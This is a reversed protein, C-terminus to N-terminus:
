KPTYSPNAVGPCITNSQSKKTANLEDETLPVGSLIEFCRNSDATGNNVAKEVLNPKASALVGIDYRSLRDELDFVRSTITNFEQKVDTNIARLENQSDKLAEITKRQEESAVRLLTNQEQLEGITNQLSEHYKIAGYIAGASILLIGAAVKLKFPIGIM